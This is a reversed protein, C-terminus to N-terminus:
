VNEDEEAIWTTIDATLFLSGCGAELEEDLIDSASEGDVAYWRRAMERVIRIALAGKEAETLPAKTADSM